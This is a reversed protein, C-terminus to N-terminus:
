ASKHRCGSTALESAPERVQRVRDTQVKMFSPVLYRALTGTVVQRASREGTLQSGMETCRAEMGDMQETLREVSAHADRLSAARAAAAATM